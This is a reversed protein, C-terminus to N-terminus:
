SSSSSSSAASTAIPYVPITIALDEFFAANREFVTLGDVAGVTAPYGTWAKAVGNVAVTVTYVFQNLADELATVKADLDAASTGTVRVTLPLSSEELVSATRLQGHIFPSATATADRPTRGIRGLGGAAIVYPSFGESGIVLDALSLGSRDITVTAIDSM